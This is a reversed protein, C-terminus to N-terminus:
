RFGRGNRVRASAGLGTRIGSWATREAERPPLGSVMAANAIVAAAYEASILWSAVMEGARCAAWFTITNREGEAAGAVKRVLGALTHQDPIVSRGPRIPSMPPQLDALLWAPWEALPADCLVPQGTAPWWIAYGGDARGDIGTVPRGTWSRLSTAHQFLLHRGGSATQHVRTAPLRHCHHEWWEEAETHRPADIDYVDIGSAAGTPVGILPGPHRDWLQRLAIPDVVADHFGHPCAPAKNGLCPFTPLGLTVAAALLCSVEAATV